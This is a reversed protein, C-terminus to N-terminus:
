ETMSVFMFFYAVVLRLRGNVHDHVGVLGHKVSNV